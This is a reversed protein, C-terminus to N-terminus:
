RLTEYTSPNKSNHLLHLCQIYLGIRDIDARAHMRMGPEHNARFCQANIHPNDADAWAWLVICFFIHLERVHCIFHAFNQLQIQM